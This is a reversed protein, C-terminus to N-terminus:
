KLGLQIERIAMKLEKYRQYEHAVPQIDEQRMVPRGHIRNFDREYSKLHAHLNRKESQLADLNNQHKIGATTANNAANNNHSQRANLSAITMVGVLHDKQHNNINGSINSNNTFNNHPGEDDSSLLTIPAGKSTNRQNSANNRAGGVRRSESNMNNSDSDSSDATNGVSSPFTKRTSSSQQTPKNASTGRSSSPNTGNNISTAISISSISHISNVSVESVVSSNSSSPVYGHKNETAFGASTPANTAPEKDDLLDEPLAGYTAEIDAKLLELNGKIEHYKQYMPRISEKDIKKPNRGWKELFEEDFKKLKRKLDRKSFLLDRYRNHVEMPLVSVVDARSYMSTSGILGGGLISSGISGNSSNNYSSKNNNNLSSNSRSNSLLYQLSIASTSNTLQVIHGLLKKRCVFGRFARQIDTAALDRIDRKLDRYRNYTEQM